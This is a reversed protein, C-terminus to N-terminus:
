STLPVDTYGGSTTPPGAVDLVFHEPATPDFYEDAPWDNFPGNGWNPNPDGFGKLQVVGIGNEHTVDGLTFTVRPYVWRWWGAVANDQSCAGTTGIARTWLELSVPDPDDAGVGRRAFGIVDGADTYM